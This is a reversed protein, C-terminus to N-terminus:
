FAATMDGISDLVLADRVDKKCSSPGSDIPDNMSRMRRWDMAHLGLDCAKSSIGDEGAISKLVARRTM